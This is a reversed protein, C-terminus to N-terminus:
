NRKRRSAVIGIFGTGLLLLTSPEPVPSPGGPRALASLVPSAAGSVVDLTVNTPNYVVKFHESSNIATGNVTAFTGKLSSFNMVDFAAGIAPVFGNILDLNLTGNLTAADTINLQDFKTGVTLGGIDINLVGSSNQTYNLTVALKAAQLAADGVNITGSSQTNGAITGTGFLSGGQINVLGPASLTGNLTTTGATQTYNGTGGVTFSSGKSVTLTGANSFDGSTKLNRGGALTFSGASANVAFNALGAGGNQNIIRSSTGTLTLNAANTVINANAFQLTGGVLYTGGALTGGTSDFNLFSNAPGTIELTDGSNVQLTGLNNFGSSNVGIILPTSQNALITGKSVLGMSAEGITGAGQITNSTTLIPTGSGAGAIVNNASNSLTLTGSGKLTVNGSVLLETTSGASNLQMTGTNNITGVLETVTGNPMVYTGANTLGSLTAGGSATEVVGNGTTALTGGTVTAGALQVTSGPTSNLAEITGGTNAFTGILRLTGGSSAAMTGTNTSSTGSPQVVLPTSVNASITGQNALTLFGDGINGGGQITTQNTLVETGTSAGLISNQPNNSLTLTGSGKLTVNGSVLLETPSGTSNVMITGNNTITGQLKTVSGNLVQFAGANTLGSLTASGASEIVGNGTTTLTGGTITAGNLQVTGGAMAEITGGTNAFTGILRLTGGSSAELAGTNTSATGSPQVILPTSGTANITGQNALTLFGDGINGGGQITSQNALVETGTSAGLILNQPNNSLTVTGSGKLTVNGSVLLGTALGSSNSQIAGTNNITGVLTTVTGNPIAYTGANTLGSLTASGASEIVGNGTTTLTGGTITAGNLQVTGGAMAEITGGTNVFTGILRLTGGSSAQLTGTNTSATGSPQVILPTSGTANITGKNALTLQGRGVNGGGQITEQNTLIQTGSTAGFIFNQPNNSLTLTGSGKLTVNGSVLLETTSGTSNLQMTGTNNISGTLMTRTGNPMVYTGANTLGSLTAGGATEIVGNGTTTLTGGTVTAGALQVTSGPTSNLAEITGGTNTITGFLQLTGGSSAELVGTNTAGGSPNIILSASVNANITGQNALTMQDNGITGAGQITEQNILLNSGSAGSIFNQPNNSLILRGGGNLTVNAGGIVIGTPSGSSNLSLSGANNISTGNVTLLIGNNIGLSDDSDITLNDISANINLSVSSAVANGGDILVNVNGNPVGKPTWNGAANWNGPGGNWTSTTQARAPALYACLLFGVSCIIAALRNSISRSPQTPFM